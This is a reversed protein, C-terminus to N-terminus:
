DCPLHPRDQDGDAKFIVFNDPKNTFYYYETNQRLPPTLYNPIISGDQEARECFGAARWFRPAIGANYCDMYEAGTEQLLDDLAGGLRPLVTNEGIFDVVRVVPVCGTERATVTRTVLYALLRGEERVAWVTYRARPYHYYRRRLYWTDKRPTHSTPPMGLPILDAASEVPEMALDHQVPLFEPALPQALRYRERRALRYYHHMREATWGLFRYFTCTHPRINNCAVVNAGVLDPLANMLELGVGNHGKAAVWVSVWVDPRPATSALIYGAVSLIRGDQEALVFQPVGGRGVYYHRYFEARNVLPLRMDFNDNIFDIIARDEGLRARRCVLESM